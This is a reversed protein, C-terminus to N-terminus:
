KKPLTLIGLFFSNFLLQAGLQIFFVSPIVIRMTSAYELNGFGGSSWDYVTKGLIVTGILILVIGTILGHEVTSRKFLFDPRKERPILNFRTVFIEAFLGFLIIQVGILMLATSVLLTHIDFTIGAITLPKFLSLSFFLLGTFFSVLGPILFLWTPAFLLMFRLTRWGDQWTRLHPKRLRGDKHLTIPVEAVKMNMLSAKSVMEIAYEMGTTQMDWQEWADKRFGRLGCYFDGAKAKFFIKGLFSFFPNGLKHLPPMAGPMIKGSFRNGMVLDNGERLKNVFGSIESFDYSDDADGMIIFKGAAKSIGEQLAAGYGKIKVNVVKAGNKKAIEVSGDTSGNDAVIIEYAAPQKKFSAQIKKICTLLTRSENLCPMVVSFETQKM